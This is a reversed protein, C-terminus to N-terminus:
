AREQEAIKYKEEWVVKELAQKELDKLRISASEANETAESLFAKTRALDRTLGVVQQESEVFKSNVVALEAKVSELEKQTQKQQENTTDLQNLMKNIECQASNGM